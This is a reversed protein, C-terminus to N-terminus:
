GSLNQGGCIDLGTGTIYTNEPSILFEVAHAIEEQRAIRGLPIKGEVEKLRKKSVNEKLMPTMTMGPYVSNILINDPAWDVSLQRVLGGLAAKSVTYEVGSLKSYRRAALSNIIVVRGRNKKLVAYSYKLTLLAGTVNTAVIDNWLFKDFNEISKPPTTIGAAFILANIDSFNTLLVSFLEKISKESRIDVKFTKIGELSLSRRGAVIIEYGKNKLYHATALGIGSTGGVIVVRNLQSM